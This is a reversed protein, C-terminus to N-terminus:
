VYCGRSQPSPIPSFSGAFNLKSSQVAYPTCSGMTAGMIPGHTRALLNGKTMPFGSKEDVVTGEQTFQYSGAPLFGKRVDGYIVTTMGPERYDFCHMCPRSDVIGSPTVYNGNNSTYGSSSGYGYIRAIPKPSTAM